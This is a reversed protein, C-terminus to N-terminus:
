STEAPDREIALMQEVADPELVSQDPEIARLVPLEDLVITTVPEEIPEIAKTALPKSRRGFLLWALLLVLGLGPLLVIVVPGARLASSTASFTANTGLQPRWIVTGSEVTGSGDQVSSAGPMEARVEISLGSSQAVRLLAALNPDSTATQFKGTFSSKTKLFSRSTSYDQSFFAVDLGAQDGVRTARLEDLVRGFSAPDTFRQSATVEIGGAPETRAVTWGKAKLGDFLQLMEDLGYAKLGAARDRAESDMALGLTFTGGGKGDLSTTYRVDVQCASLTLVVATAAIAIRLAKPM